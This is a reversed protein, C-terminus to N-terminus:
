ERMEECIRHNEIFSNLYMKQDEDIDAFRVRRERTIIRSFVSQEKVAVDSIVCQKLSTLCEGDDGCIVFGGTDSASKDIDLYRFAVGGMSINLIEGIQPYMGAFSGERLLYRKDKRRDQKIDM